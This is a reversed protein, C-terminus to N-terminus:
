KEVSNLSELYIVVLKVNQWLHKVVLQLTYLMWSHKSVTQMTWMLVMLRFWMRFHHVDCTQDSCLLGGQLSTPSKHSTRTCKCWSWIKTSDKQATSSHSIVWWSFVQGWPIELFSSLVWWNTYTAQFTALTTEVLQQGNLHQCHQLKYQSHSFTLWTLSRTGFNLQLFSTLNIWRLLLEELGHEWKLVKKGRQSFGMDVTASPLERRHICTSWGLCDMVNPVFYLSRTIWNCSQEKNESLHHWTQSVKKRSQPDWWPKM